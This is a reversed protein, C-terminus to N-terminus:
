IKIENVFQNWEEQTLRKGSLTICMSNIVDYKDKEWHAWTSQEQKLYEKEKPLFWKTLEQGQYDMDISSRYWERSKVLNLFESATMLELSEYGSYGENQKWHYMLWEKIKKNKFQIMNNKLIKFLNLHTDNFWKDLQVDIQPKIETNFWKKYEVNSLHRKRLNQPDEGTTSIQTYHIWKCLVLNIWRSHEKNKQEMFKARAKNLYVRFEEWDYELNQMFRNWDTFVSDEMVYHEQVEEQAQTSELEAAEEACQKDANVEGQEETKEGSEKEKEDRKSQKLANEVSLNNNISEREKNKAKEAENGNLRSHKLDEKNKVSYYNTAEKKTVIKDQHKNVSKRKNTSSSTPKDSGNKRVGTTEGESEGEDAVAQEEDETEEWDEDSYVEQQVEDEGELYGIGQTEGAPVDQGNDESQVWDIDELQFKDQSPTAAEITTALNRTVNRNGQLTSSAVHQRQLDDQHKLFIYASGVFLIAATKSLFNRHAKKGRSEAAENAGSCAKIPRSGNNSQSKLTGQLFFSTSTTKINAHAM